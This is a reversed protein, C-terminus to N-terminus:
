FNEMEFRILERVILWGLGKVLLLSHTGYASNTVIRAARNQLVQLRKLDVETCCGWVTCCYGLYPEIIRRYMTQVIILPAYREAYRPKGIRRTKDTQVGLYKAENIM